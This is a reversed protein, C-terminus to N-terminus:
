PRDERRGPGRPPRGERRLTAALGGPAFSEKPLGHPGGGQAPRRRRAIIATHYAGLIGVNLADQALVLTEDQEPLRLDGEGFSAAEDSGVRGEVQVKAV